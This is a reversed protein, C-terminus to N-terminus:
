HCCISLLPYFSKSTTTHVPSLSLDNPDFPHVSSSGGTNPSDCVSDSFSVTHATNLSSLGNLSRPRPASGDTPSDELAQAAAVGGGSGQRMMAIAPSSSGSRMIPRTPPLQPMNYLMSQPLMGHGVQPGAQTNATSVAAAMLSHSRHPPSIVAGTNSHIATTSRLRLANAQGTLSNIAIPQINITHPRVPTAPAASGGASTSTSSAHTPPLPASAPREVQSGNTSKDADDFSRQQTNRRMRMRTQIHQAEDEAAASPDYLLCNLRSMKQRYTLLVELGGTGSNLNAPIGSISKEIVNFSPPATEGKGPLILQLDVVPNGTPEKRYCLIIREASTGSNLNCATKGRNVVVFGPPTYENRDPFVVIFNTIPYLTGSLDKKICLYLPNGGSSTNLDAKKYSPTKHIRYFGPPPMTKAQVICVDCIPANLIEPDVVDEYDRRGDQDRTDMNLNFFGWSSSGRTNFGGAAGMGFRLQQNRLQEPTLQKQFFDSKIDSKRKDPKKSTRLNEAALLQTSSTSYSLASACLEDNDTMHLDAIRGRISAVVNLAFQDDGHSYDGNVHAPSSRGSAM